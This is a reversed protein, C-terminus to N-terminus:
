GESGPAERRSDTGSDQYLEGERRAASTAERGLIEEVLPGLREVFEAGSACQFWRAGALRRCWTLQRRAYARSKRKATEVAGALSVRGDLHELLEAYGYANAIYSNTGFGHERLMRVEDLLGDRMMRDFREDIQRNLRERDMTLVAHCPEFEPRAPNRETMMLSMPHGVTACVELARVMRQRDNPHVRSAREPDAKRLRSQLEPLSLAELERRVKPDARPADFFPEFVARIYMGSGGVVLFRRGESNLRRMVALADRAYDAASYRRNLEVKDVMHFPVRDRVERTPKDTGIDLWCYVQRSDASVLELGYREALSVAVSTKGVGTPGTLVLVIM